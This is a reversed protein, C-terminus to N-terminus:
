FVPCQGGWLRLSWAANRVLEQTISVSSDLSHLKLVLSGSSPTMSISGAHVNCKSKLNLSLNERKSTTHFCSSDNEGESITITRVKGQFTSVKEKPPCYQSSLRMGKRGQKVQGGVEM